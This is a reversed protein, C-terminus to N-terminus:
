TPVELVAGDGDFDRPTPHRDWIGWPRSLAYSPRPNSLMQMM